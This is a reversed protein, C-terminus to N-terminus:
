GKVVTLKPTVIKIVAGRIKKNVADIEIDVSLHFRERKTRGSAILGAALVRTLEELDLRIEQDEDSSV